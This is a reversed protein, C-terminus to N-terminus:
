CLGFHVNAYSRTWGVSVLHCTTILLVSGENDDVAAARRNVVSSQEYSQSASM